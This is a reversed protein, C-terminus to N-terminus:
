NWNNWLGKDYFWLITWFEPDLRLFKVMELMRDVPNSRRNNRLLEYHSCYLYLREKSVGRFIAM